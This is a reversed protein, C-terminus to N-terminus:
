KLSIIKNEYSILQKKVLSSICRSLSERSVGLQKALLTISSINIQKHISLLYLLKDSTNDFSLTRNKEKENLIADSLMSLYCLLTPSDSLLYLLKDKSIYAIISDTKSIIKGKYFPSSSFILSNGFISNKKLNNFLIENGKYSYSAIIIKGKIVLGIKNCCEQEHFIIEDKKYEVKEEINDKLLKIFEEKNM